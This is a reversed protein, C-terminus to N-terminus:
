FLPFCLFLKLVFGGATDRDIMLLSVQAFGLNILVCFVYCFLKSRVQTEATNAHPDEDPKVQAAVPERQRRQLLLLLLLLPPL